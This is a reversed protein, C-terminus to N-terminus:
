SNKSIYTYEYVKENYVFKMVNFFQFLSGLQRLENHYEDYFDNKYNAYEVYRWSNVAREHEKNFFNFVKEEICYIYPHQYKYGNRRLYQLAETIIEIETKFPNNSQENSLEVVYEKITTGDKSKILINRNFLEHPTIIIDIRM